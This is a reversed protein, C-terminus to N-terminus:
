PEVVAVVLEAGFSWAGCLDPQDHGFGDNAPDRVGRHRTRGIDDFQDEPKGSQHRLLVGCLDDLRM